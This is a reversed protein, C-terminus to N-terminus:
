TYRAAVEAAQSGYGHGHTVAHVLLPHLQHLGILDPWDPRVAASETYAAFVRAVHETGFLALMALDTLRHGGHAAPDILVAEIGGGAAAYLVNGGWLDGHIRAPPEDDDFEGATLRECVLDVRRVAADSLNGIRHAARAFPALRTSAYFEGWRAFPSIPLEQRGIWGDGAWGPPAAGFAVAGAGHTIALSRGFAEAADRSAPVTPIRDLVIRTDGVERVGVVATGGAAEGLWGLGAAEWAFFGPPADARRKVFTSYSDAATM